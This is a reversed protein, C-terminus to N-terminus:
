ILEDLIDYINDDDNKDNQQQTYLVKTVTTAEKIDEMQKEINEQTSIFKLYDDYKQILISLDYNCRLYGDKLDTKGRALNSAYVKDLYNEKRRWMDHLHESPIPKSLNVLTGSYIKAMKMYFTNPFATTEYREFLYPYLFEKAYTDNERKTALIDGKRKAFAM